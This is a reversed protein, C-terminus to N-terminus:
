RGHPAALLKQSIVKLTGAIAAGTGAVFAGAQTNVKTLTGAIVASVSSTIATVSNITASNKENIEKLKKKFEGKSNECEKTVIDTIKNDLEDFIKKFGGLFNAKDLSSKFNQAAQDLEQLKKDIGKRKSKLEVNEEELKKIENDLLELSLSASDEVTDTQNKLKSSASQIALIAVETNAHKIINKARIPNCVTGLNFRASASIM